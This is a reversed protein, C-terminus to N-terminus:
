KQSALFMEKTSREGEQEKVEYLSLKFAYKQNMAEIWSSLLREMKLM